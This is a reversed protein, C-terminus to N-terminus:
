RPLELASMQLFPAHCRSWDLPTGLRDAADQRAAAQRTLFTQRVEGEPPPNMVFEQVAAAVVGPVPPVLQYHAPDMFEMRGGTCRTSIVPLDCLAYEAVARCGGEADSLALGTRAQNMYWNLQAQSVMEGDTRAWNARRLRAQMQQLYRQAVPDFKDQLYAIMLVRPTDEALWHRKWPVAAAQQIADYYKVTGPRWQWVDPPVVLQDHFFMFRADKTSSLLRRETIGIVHRWDPLLRSLHNYQQEAAAITMTRGPLWIHTLPQERLAASVHEPRTPWWCNTYLVPPAGGLWSVFAYDAAM